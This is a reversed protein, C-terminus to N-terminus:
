SRAVAAAIDRAIRVGYQDGAPGHAIQDDLATLIAAVADNWGHDYSVDMVSSPDDLLAPEEALVAIDSVFEVEKGAPVKVESAFEVAVPEGVAEAHDSPTPRPEVSMSEDSEKEDLIKTDDM